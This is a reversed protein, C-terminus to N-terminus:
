RGPDAPPVAGGMAIFWPNAWEEGRVPRRGYALDGGGVEVTRGGAARLVAAGAATDWQMTRSFRPYLDAAGRALLCFKLSSGVSVTETAGCAAIYDSTERSLHSRSAVVLPPEAAPRVALGVRAGVAGDAAVRAREAHGPRAAYLEGTAPAVVVGIVPAANRILAINVTYDPRGCVFEKTGDLPDVLFFADGTAADAVGASAEEEGICAIDPFARRLGSLITKEARRDAETVPSADEKREAVIGRRAVDLIDQSALIALREMERLLQEDDAM